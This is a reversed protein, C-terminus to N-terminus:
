SAPLPLHLRMIYIIYLLFYNSFPLNFLFLYNYNTSGRLLQVPFYILLEIFLLLLNFSQLYFRFPFYLSHFHLLPM